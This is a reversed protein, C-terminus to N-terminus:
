TAGLWADRRARTQPSTEQQLVLYCADRAAEALTVDAVILEDRRFAHVRVRDGAARRTGLAALTDSTARLGDFAVLVDGPALGAAEAAGERYVHQVRMDNGVKADLAARPLPGSAAKGGRDNAGASERLRMDVGFAELLQALPPDDTGHVCRALLDRVPAGGADGALRELGGEPVGVGRRGYQTWLARMVDDLSADGHLRLTLDLAMAVLAGKAYYSVGANPSNEDPRYFKIWADFSADAISQVRRGPTHLVRTITRGVLELYRPADIVGSRVLALDDYYSTVGEYAWLDRTYNERSLDYPAFSAPKIRKVNWAHFYEHSALGLFNLYEDSITAQAALPLEDRRCILSTSSGHELGGYGEGVAMILFLYREFPAPAGFLEIQWTCVRELDRAVRELDSRTRSTLALRHPTGAATFSAEQVEGMEVPHDILADYNAARYRGFGREGIAEADLTTAVRWHACAPGDAAVIDLTCPAGARGEPCLFVAPGNFYGRTADLYATRVSLDFAYVQAIVTVEDRADDVCWVDKAEKRIPVSVGRSEARVEIFQRSFERILYSGPIWVPLRFRQGEPAPDRVSCRVEFLHAHPDHAAITYHTSHM